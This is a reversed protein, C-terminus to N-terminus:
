IAKGPLRLIGQPNRHLSKDFVEPALKGEKLIAERKKKQDPTKAQDEYGVTRSEKYLILGHGDRNLPVIASRVGKVPDILTM